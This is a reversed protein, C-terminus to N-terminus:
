RHPSWGTRAAWQEAVVGILDVVPDKVDAYTGTDPVAGALVYKFRAYAPVAQPTARLWDRFLLALRENPSGARRVHLNVPVDHAARRSWYRKAWDAPDEDDERGAPVHDRLFPRRVFGLTALPAEFAATAADLDAVSVQVDYIDKAAMGPVSTSGIHDVHLAAPGLAAHLRACLAAGGAAWAADHPVVVPKEQEPQGPAQPEEPVRPQPHQQPM